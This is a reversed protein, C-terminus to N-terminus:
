KFLPARGGRASKEAGERFVEYTSFLGGSASPAMLGFQQGRPRTWCRGPGEKTGYPPVVAPLRAHEGSESNPSFECSWVQVIVLQTELWLGM